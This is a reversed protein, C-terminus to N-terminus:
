EMIHAMGQDVINSIHEDDLSYFVNKGEKRFRILKGTRLIRLQHSVASQSMKLICALDCVCLESISLANIIRIRTHDGLMKFLDSLSQLDSSKGLSRNVKEVSETHICEIQCIEDKMTYIYSCINM